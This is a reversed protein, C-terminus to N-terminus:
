LCSKVYIRTPALLAAGLSEQLAVPAPAAYPLPRAEVAGGVLSFGLSHAGSSALELLMVGVAVGEGASAEGRAVAGVAFGALGHDAGPYIGPMVATEGGILARGAERCATAIGAIITTGTHVDLRGSAFYDLFFLPEAGQVALDNVGMAVLDIGITGHR